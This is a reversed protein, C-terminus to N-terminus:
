VDNGPCTWGHPSTASRKGSQSPIKACNGARCLKETVPSSNERIRRLPRPHLAPRRAAIAPKVCRRRLSHECSHVPRMEAATRLGRARRPHTRPAERRGRRALEVQAIQAGREQGPSQCPTGPQTEDDAHLVEVISAPRLEGRSLQRGEAREADVPVARDDVLGLAQPEVFGGELLQVSSAQDVLAIARTAVERSHDGGRMRRGAGVGACAAFEALRLASGPSGAHGPQASAGGIPQASVVAPDVDDVLHLSGVAARDVIEHDAPAVPGEAVVEDRHVVVPELPDRLDNASLVQEGRRGPM